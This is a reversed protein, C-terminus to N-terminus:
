ASLLVAPLFISIFVHPISAPDCARSRTWAYLLLNLIVFPEVVCRPSTDPRVGAYSAVVSTAYARFPLAQARYPISPATHTSLPPDLGTWLYDLAVFTTLPRPSLQSMVEGNWTHLPSPVGVERERASMVVVVVVEISEDGCRCEDRNVGVGFSARVVTTAILVAGTDETQRRRGGGEQGRITLRPEGDKRMKVLGRPVSMPTNSQRVYQRNM